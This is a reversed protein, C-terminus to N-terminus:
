SEKRETKGKYLKDQVQRQLKWAMPLLFFHDPSIWPGNEPKASIWMLAAQAM